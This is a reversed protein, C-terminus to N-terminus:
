LSLNEQLFRQIDMCQDYITMAENNCVYDFNNWDYLEKDLAKEAIADSNFPNRSLRIAKGGTNKISEIENPFRCDVIIALQPKEIEIKKLTAKVWIDNKIRRFIGTGVFEMVERATMYGSDHIKKEEIWNDNYEPMDCWRLSTLSNKDDDTGYCQDYSMGLMNICIDQKLPDAFSYLKIIPNLAAYLKNLIYDNTPKSLDLIGAYNIDGFLDSIYIRGQNDLEIKECIGLEALKLSFIFNGTTSKGSQKRGSIGLIM